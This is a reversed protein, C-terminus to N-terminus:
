PRRAASAIPAPEDPVFDKMLIRKCGFRPHWAQVLGDRREGDVAYMVNVWLNGVQYFWTAFACTGDLMAVDVDSSGALRAPLGSLAPGFSLYVNPHPQGKLIADALPVTDIRINGELIQCGFVKLFYLHVNLMARRSDYPFIRSPRIYTGAAIPPVRARLVESFRQWAFDHPQTTASNCRVCIRNTFKLVPAKLSGVRFNRRKATHFYIPDAQTPLGFLSRLDSAKTRHERTNAPDGCIWCPTSPDIESMM